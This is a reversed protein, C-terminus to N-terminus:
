LDSNSTLQNVSWEKSTLVDIRKKGKLITIQAYVDKMDNIGQSDDSAIFITQLETGQLKSGIHYVKM